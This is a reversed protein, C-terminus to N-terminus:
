QNKLLQAWLSQHFAARFHSFYVLQSSLSQGQLLHNTTQGNLSLNIENPASPFSVLLLCFHTFHINGTGWPHDRAWSCMFFGHVSIAWLSTGESLTLVSHAKDAFFSHTDLAYFWKCCGSILLTWPICDMRVYLSCIRLPSNVVEYTFEFWLTLGVAVLFPQYCLLLSVAVLNSWHSACIPEPIQTM